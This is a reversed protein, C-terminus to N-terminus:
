KKLLALYMTVLFTGANEDVAVGVLTQSKNGSNIVPIMPKGIARSLMAFWQSTLEQRLVGPCALRVNGIDPGKVTLCHALTRSSMGILAYDRNAMLLDSSTTIAVEGSYGPGASSAVSTEITTYKEVRQDLQSGTILRADV